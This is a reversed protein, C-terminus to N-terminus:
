LKVGLRKEYDVIQEETITFERWRMTAKSRCLVYKTGDPRTFVKRMVDFPGQMKDMPSPRLVEVPQTNLEPQKEV